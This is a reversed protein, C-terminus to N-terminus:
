LDIEFRTEKNKLINEVVEFVSELSTIKEKDTPIFVSSNKHFDTELIKPNIIFIKKDKLENKLAGAFGRLGFKSAQYVSANKMFKKGIISGIFVIKAKQELFPLIKQLFLIPSLLNLNIINKYTQEGGDEFRGFYGIGSNFVIMEFKKEGIKGLIKDFQEFNTLDFNIEEFINLDTKTRSIGFINYNLNLKEALFRGLGCSTGTILINKKM